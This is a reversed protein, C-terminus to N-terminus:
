NEMELIMQIKYRGSKFSEYYEMEINHRAEQESKASTWEKFDDVQENGEYVGIYITYKKPENTQKKISM